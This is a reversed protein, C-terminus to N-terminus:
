VGIWDLQQSAAGARAYLSTIEEVPLDISQTAALPFGNGAQLVDSGGIYVPVTNDDHARVRVFKCFTFGKPEIQVASTGVTVTGRQVPFDNPSVTEKIHNPM